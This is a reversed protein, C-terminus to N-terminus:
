LRCVLKERSQLESTHEESRPKLKNSSRITSATSPTASISLEGSRRLQCRSARLSATSTSSALSSASARLVAILWPAGTVRQAELDSSRRTPFAYLDRLDRPR